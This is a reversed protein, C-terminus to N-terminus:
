VGSSLLLYMLFATGFFVLVQKLLGARKRFVLNSIAILWLVAGFPMLLTGAVKVLWLEDESMGSKQGCVLAATFLFPLAMSFVAIGLTEAILRIL